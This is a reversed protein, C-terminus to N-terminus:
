NASGWVRKRTELMTSIGAGTRAPRVSGSQCVRTWDDNGSDATGVVWGTKRKRTVAIEGECETHVHGLALHPCARSPLTAGAHRIFLHPDADEVTLCRDYAWSFRSVTM